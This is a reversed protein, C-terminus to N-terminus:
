HRTWVPRRHNRRRDQTDRFTKGRSRREENRYEVALHFAAEIEEFNKPDSGDYALKQIDGAHCEVPNMWSANTATPVLTVNNQSAWSRIEPTWHASLGDQIIFLPEDRPYNSREEKLFDLWNTAHKTAYQKVSLRQHFVNLCLFQYRVEGTRHYTAPVREPRGQPFWGTGGRPKLTFPGIEDISLVVPPNHRKRTLEDIRQKKEHFEPDKSEKWTKISQHSVGAEDLIVRLWEISISAVIGREIAADHLRQLSWQQFPLGLDPPRSTALAVLSERQSDSFKKKDNPKWRPKLMGLGSQNFEHILTRIYDETMGVIVGIKPATFGQASALIVQARRMEIPDKAYRVARRLKEGEENTIERVRVVM